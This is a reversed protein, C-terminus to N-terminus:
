RVIEVHTFRVLSSNSRLLVQYTTLGDAYATALQNTGRVECQLDPKIHARITVRAGPPIAKGTAYRSPENLADVTWQGTLASYRLGCHTFAQFDDLIVYAVDGDQAQAPLEVGFQVYWGGFVVHNDVVLNTDNKTASLAGNAVQWTPDVWGHAGSGFGDFFIRSHSAGGLDCADGIGDADADAQLPDVDGPCTDCADAVGDGDEDDSPGYLCADCGDDIADRDIDRNISFGVGDPCSLADCADGIGDHDADAQDPNAIGECNDATDRVGDRDADLSSNEVDGLSLLDACGATAVCLALWVRRM